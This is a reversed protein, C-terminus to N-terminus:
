LCYVGCSAVVSLTCYSGLFDLVTCFIDCLNDGDCASKAYKYCGRTCKWWGDEPKPFELGNKIRTPTTNIDGVRNIHLKVVNENVKEFKYDAVFLNQATFISIVGSDQKKIESRDEFLSKYVEGNNKSFVALTGSKYNNQIHVYYVKVESIPNEEIIDNFSFDSIAFSFNEKLEGYDQSNFYQKLEIPITDPM